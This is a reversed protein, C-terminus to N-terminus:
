SHSAGGLAVRGLVAGFAACAASMLVIWVFLYPVLPQFFSEWMISTLSVVAATAWAIEVTWGWVGALAGAVPTGVVGRVDPWGWIAGAAVLALVAASALRWTRPWIPSPADRRVRQEELASAAAMVRPLLTRPARPPPLENLARQVADLGTPDQSEPNM